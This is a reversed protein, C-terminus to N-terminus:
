PASAVRVRAGDKLDAVSHVKHSYLGIPWVATLGVPSIHYGRQAIQADLYPKHQFANADIDGRDLADNPQTYDQFTVVEIDLGRKAGEEAVVKWLDEDQGGMYAISRHGLSVLHRVALRSVVADDVGVNRLGPAPGGIVIMPHRTLELEAREIWWQPEDHHFPAAAALFALAREAQRWGSRPDATIGSPRNAADYALIRAGNLWFYLSRPALACALRIRREVVAWDHREWASWM